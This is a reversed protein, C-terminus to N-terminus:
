KKTNLYIQYLEKTTPRPTEGVKYWVIKGTKFRETTSWEWGEEIAWEIFRVEMVEREDQRAKDMAAYVEKTTYCYDDSDEGKVYLNRILEENTM